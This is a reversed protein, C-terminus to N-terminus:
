KRAEDELLDFATLDARMPTITTYGDMMRHCDHEPPTARNDATHVVWFYEKGGPSTRTETSFSVKSRRGQRAEVPGLADVAAVAPFNVNYFM